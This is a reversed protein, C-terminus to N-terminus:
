GRASITSFNMEWFGKDKLRYAILTIDLETLNNTNLFRLVDENSGNTAIYKWSKTDVDILEDVVNFTLPKASAIGTQDKAMQAPYHAFKGSM